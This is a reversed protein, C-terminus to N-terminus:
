IPLRRLVAQARFRGVLRHQDGPFTLRVWTVSEDGRWTRREVCLCATSPGLRLLEAAMGEANAAEIQHEAETWPVEELLWSGPPADTFDQAEAQPVVELNILREELAFPAGSARHVGTISLVAAGAQVNLRAADAGTARRVKRAHREFAYARGSARVEAAIDHIELVTEEVRPTAVFTGARRRRVLLGAEVLAAIARGVTMRACGFHEALEPESPLKRGPPWEGSVISDKLTRQIELWRPSAIRRAPANGPM